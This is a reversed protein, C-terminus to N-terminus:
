QRQKGLWDQVEDSHRYISGGEYYPPIGTSIYWSEDIYQRRLSGEDTYPDYDITDILGNNKLVQKLEYIDYNLYKVTNRLSEIEGYAVGDRITYNMVILLFIPILLLFIQKM